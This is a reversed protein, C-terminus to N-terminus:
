TTETRALLTSGVTFGVLGIAIMIGCPLAMEAPSFTRWIAGELALISWKVPSLDSLRAMWPPMAFLPIMGGGIMAMVLLVAWGIGGAAAETKGMVSLLMMIGVFGFAISLVALALLPVSNPVVNFALYAILLLAAAVAVTTIFCALGKGALIQWRAVPAIRLRTLTGRTREVVLSIGFGAATGLVGWLIGQPFSVAYASPPAGERQRAVSVTEIRIPSFGQTGVSGADAAPDESPPAAQPLDTLFSDLSNLFPELIARQAPSLETPAAARVSALADRALQSGKDPDTFLDQMREFARATLLGEIMGAEARRAPDVGVILRMPEGWFIRDAAEGFGPPLAVFATQKGRRVLDEAAARDDLRTVAFAADSELARVFREANPSRDEDIVAIPIATAGGGGGAFVSGFFVAMVLPFFCVFFFGVKDRLLLRIDKLALALVATM